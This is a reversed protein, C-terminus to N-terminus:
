SIINKENLIATDKIEELVRKTQKEGLIANTTGAMRVYKDKLKESKKWNPFAEEFKSPWKRTIGHEGATIIRMGDDEEWGNDKDKVFWERKDTGTYHFPRETVSLPLLNKIIVNSLCESKNGDLDNISMLLRRAFDQISMADSCKQNLFININNTISVDGNYITKTESAKEIIKNLFHTPIVVLDKNNSYGADRSNKKIIELQETDCINKVDEFVWNCTKRHRSLNSKHTYTKGCECNFLPDKITKKCSKGITTIMKPTKHKMTEIHKKWSSLRTTIYDCKKCIYKNAVKQLKQNDNTIM